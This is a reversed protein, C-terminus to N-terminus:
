DSSQPNSDRRPHKFVLARVDHCMALAAVQVLRLVLWECCALSVPAIAGVAQGAWVASRLARLRTTPPELGVAPANGVPFVCACVCSVFLRIFLSGCWLCSGVLLFASLLSPCPVDFAFFLVLRCRVYHLPIMCAGWAQSGPEVGPTRLKCVAHGCNACPM